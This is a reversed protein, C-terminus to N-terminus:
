VREFLIPSYSVHSNQAQSKSKSNSFFDSLHLSQPILREEVIDELNRTKVFFPYFFKSALVLFDNRWLSGRAHARGWYYLKKVAVIHDSKYPAIGLSSLTKGRPVLM